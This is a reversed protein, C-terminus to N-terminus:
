SDISQDHYTGGVKILTGGQPAQSISFLLRNNQSLGLRLLTNVLGMGGLRLTKYNTAVDSRYTEVKAHIEAIKEPTIGSGNDTIQLFWQGNEAVAEIQIQWPPRCNKFGHSFCNEALPQIIMKPIEINQVPGKTTINYEFLEEYRDKMLDLYNQTHQLEDALSANDGNYDAIYRLLASLKLCMSVTRQDGNEECSEVMVSLMNFLFHPNMQSQLARMHAQIEMSLSKDLRILMEHFAKSLSNLEATSYSIQTDAISRKINQLNINTITHSLYQLPGAIRNSLYYMALLLCCLLVLSGGMIIVNNNAYPRQLESAPLVRVFIWDSLAVPAAMVLTNQYAIRQDLVLIDKGGESLAAAVTTFDVPFPVGGPLPYVAEGSAHILYHAQNASHWFPLEVFVDASVQVDVMGYTANTYSSLPRYLSMLQLNPNSSWTDKHFGTVYVPEKSQLIAAQINEYHGSHLVASLVEPTEYLTGTSVYDGNGNFVSIRAVHTNLGNIGSLLSGVHISDILNKEFYNAPSFDTALPIFCGLIENNSVVQAALQNMQLLINEIEGLNNKFLEQQHYLEIRRNMDTTLVFLATTFLVVVLTIVIAYTFFLRNKFAFTKMSM